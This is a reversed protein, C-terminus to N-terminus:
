RATKALNAGRQQERAIMNMIDGPSEVVMVIKGKDGFSGMAIQTYKDEPNWKRFDTANTMNVFISRGDDDHLELWM